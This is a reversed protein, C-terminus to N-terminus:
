NLIGNRAKHRGFLGYHEKERVVQPERQGSTSISCDASEIREPLSGVAIM